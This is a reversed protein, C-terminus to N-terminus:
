QKFLKFSIRVNIIEGYENKDYGVLIADYGLARIYDRIIIFHEESIQNLPISSFKTQYGYCFLDYLFDCFNLDDECELDICITNKKPPHEHSFLFDAFNKFQTERFEVSM